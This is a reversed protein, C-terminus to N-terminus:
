WLLSRSTRWTDRFAFDPAIREVKKASGLIEPKLCGCLLLREGVVVHIERCLVMLCEKRTLCISSFWFVFYHLCGPSFSVRPCSDLRGLLSNSKIRFTGSSINEQCFFLRQVDSLCLCLESLREPNRFRVVSSRLLKLVLIREHFRLMPTVGINHDVDPPSKCHTCSLQAPM